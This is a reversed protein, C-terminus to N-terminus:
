SNEPDAAEQKKRMLQDLRVQPLATDPALDMAARYDREANDFEGLSEYAMGRNIHAIHIKTTSKEIASTYEEIAKDFVKRLYYVNGINVYIEGFEPKLKLASSYDQIANEYDKLAMFIIGRNTLTAARDRLSMAGYDLARNCNEIERSSTYHIRAAIGAARYCDRAHTNDTIVEMSTSHQYKTFKDQSQAFGLIPLLLTLGLFIRLISM